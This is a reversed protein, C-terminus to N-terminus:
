VVGFWLMFVAIVVMALDEVLTISTMPLNLTTGLCACRIKQKKLLAQLVGLSSFGMLMIAAWFTLTLNYRFLFAFGLALELFPYLLGYAPVRKALLDYTAYADRFGPLNLLKFFGFVLFFGAEFSIMWDVLATEPAGVGRFSVLAIAGVILFLPYYTRLFGRNDDEVMTAMDHHAHDMNTQLGGMSDQRQEAPSLPRLIYRKDIKALRAQADAMAMPQQLRM